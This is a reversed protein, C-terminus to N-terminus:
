NKKKRLLSLLQYTIVSTGILLENPSLKIADNYLPGTADNIIQVLKKKKM